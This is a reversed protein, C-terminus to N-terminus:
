VEFPRLAAGLAVAFIPAIEALTDEMFAPYAIKTFPNALEVTRDFAYQARPVFDHFSASGGSLVLRSLMAGSHQEYQSIVRKFEQLPRDFTDSMIKKVTAADPHEPTITRKLNEAAEFSISLAKAIAATAHSGGTHVRHIRRLMGGSAIYLKCTDAGVDIVGLSADSEKTIARLSSFLEIEAPHSDMETANLIAKTNNLAENQIAALLIQRPVPAKSSAESGAAHEDLEVWELTVDTIPVPIYKRAEVHVRPTIDENQMADLTIITVFSEALPLALVGSRASVGAERMVDVVAEIKKELSLDVSNGLDSEAYPGLQLEGYTTLMLVEDKMEVEVVKISSSGIDIGVVKQPKAKSENMSSFIKKLSLQM